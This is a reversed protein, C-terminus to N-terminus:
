PWELLVRQDLAQQADRAFEAFRPLEDRTVRGGGFVVEVDCVVRDRRERVEIEITGWPSDLRKSGPVETVEAGEPIVFVTRQRWTLPEPLWMGVERERGPIHLPLSPFEVSLRFSLTSGTRQAFRHLRGSYGYRVQADGLDIAAIRTREVELEPRTRELHNQLANDPDDALRVRSRERAAIEGWAAIDTELHAAGSRELVVQDTREIVAVSPDAPPTRVLEGTGSGTRAEGPDIVLALTERDPLPLEGAGHHLVTGDLWLDEGPVHVIAHNFADFVPISTDIEGLDRTRLLAVRAEVGALELMTVLLSAKDKCDGHRRRLVLDTPYPKIAHIGFELAVYRTNELVWRYLREVIERDDTLGRTQESVIEALDSTARLQPRLLDAYISGLEEWSEVTGLLLYPLREIPPPALPADPYAPLRPIEIVTRRRGDEDLTEVEPESPMRVARHRVPLERPAEIV